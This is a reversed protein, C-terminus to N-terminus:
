LDYEPPGIVLITVSQESLPLSAGYKPFFLTPPLLGVSYRDLDVEVIEGDSKIKDEMSAVPNM